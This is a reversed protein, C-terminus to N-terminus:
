EVCKKCLFYKDFYWDANWYTRLCFLRGPYQNWGSGMVVLRIDSGAIEISYDLVNLFWNQSKVKYQNGDIILKNSFGNKYVISHEVGNVDTFAWSKKM